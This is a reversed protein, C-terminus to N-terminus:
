KGAKQKMEYYKEIVALGNTAFSPSYKEYRGMNVFVYEATEKAEQKTKKELIKHELFIRQVAPSLVSQELFAKPDLNGPLYKPLQEPLHRPRPPEAPKEEKPLAPVPPIRRSKDEGDSPGRGDRRRFFM